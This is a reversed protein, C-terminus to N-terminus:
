FEAAIDNAAKPTVVTKQLQQDMKLVENVSSINLQHNVSNIYTEIIQSNNLPNSIDYCGLHYPYSDHDHKGAEEGGFIFSFIVYVGMIIFAGAVANWMQM